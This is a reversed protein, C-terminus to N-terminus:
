GLGLARAFGPAVWFAALVGVADFAIDSMSNRWTEHGFEVGFRAFWPGLVLIEFPEWLALLLIAWIPGLLLGAALGSAAHVASWWDVLRDNRARRGLRRANAAGSPRTPPRQRRPRPVGIPQRRRRPELHRVRTATAV